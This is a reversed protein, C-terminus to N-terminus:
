FDIKNHLEGYDLGYDPDYRTDDPDPGAQSENFLDIAEESARDKQDQTTQTNWECSCMRISAKPDTDGESPNLGVIWVVEADECIPCDLHVTTTLTVGFM